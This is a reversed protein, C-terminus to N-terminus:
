LCVRLGVHEQDNTEQVRKLAKPLYQISVSASHSVVTVVVFGRGFWVLGVLCFSAPHIYPNPHSVDEVTKFM